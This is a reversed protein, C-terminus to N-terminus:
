MALKETLCTLFESTHCTCCSTVVQCDEPRINTDACIEAYISRCQATVQQCRIDAEQLQTTAAQLQANVDQIQAEIQRQCSANAKKRRKKGSKAAEAPAPAAIAMALLAGSLRALTGRRSVTREEQSGPEMAVNM